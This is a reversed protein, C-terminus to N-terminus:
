CLILFVYMYFPKEFAGNTAKGTGLLQSHAVDHQVRDIALPLQFLPSFRQALDVGAYDRNGFQDPNSSFNPLTAFVDPANKQCFCRSCFDNARFNHFGNMRDTLWKLDGQACTFAIIHSAGHGDTEVTWSAEFLNLWTVLQTRTLTPGRM